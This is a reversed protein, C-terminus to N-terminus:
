SDEKSGSRRLFRRTIWTYTLAALLVAGVLVLARWTISAALAEASGTVQRVGSKEELPRNLDTLLSRAETVAARTKEALAILDPIQVPKSNPDPPGGLEDIQVIAAEVAVATSEWAAGAKRLEESAGRIAEAVKDAEKLASNFEKAASELDGATTQLEPNVKMLADVLAKREDEIAKVLAQREGRLSEPLQKAADSIGAFSTGIKDLNRRADEVSDLSQTELAFLEMEWRLREPLRRFVGALVNAVDTFRNVASPTDAVGQLSTFPSLPMQLIRALDGQAPVGSLQLGPGAPGYLADRIPVRSALQEVEDKAASVGDATFHRLGVDIIDQEFKRVVEVALSQQSGFLSEGEPSTFYQRARAALIWAELFKQRPDGELFLGDMAAQSFIKLRLTRERVARDATSAAITSATGIIEAINREICRDVDVNLKATDIEGALHGRGAALPHTEVERCSLCALALLAVLVEARGFSPRRRSRARGSSLSFKQLIGFANM